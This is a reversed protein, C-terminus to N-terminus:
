KFPNIDIISPENNNKRDFEFAKKKNKYVSQMFPSGRHLYVKEGKFKRGIQSNYIANATKIFVDKKFWDEPCRDFCEKSTLKLMDGDRLHHHFDNPQRIQIKKM